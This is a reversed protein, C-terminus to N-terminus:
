ILFLAPRVRLSGRHPLSPDTSRVDPVGRACPQQQHTGPPRVQEVFGDPEYENPQWRVDYDLAGNVRETLADYVEGGISLLQETRRYRIAIPSRHARKPVYGLRQPLPAWGHAAGAERIWSACLGQYV